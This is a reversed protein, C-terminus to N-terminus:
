LLAPEFNDWDIASQKKPKEVRKTVYKYLQSPKYDIWRIVDGFDDLVGYLNM